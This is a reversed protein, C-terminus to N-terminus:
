LTGEMETALKLLENLRERQGTLYLYGLVAELATAKRYDLPDANKTPTQRANEARRAIAAEEDSLLPRLKELSKAQAGANVVASASKSLANVKGAAKLVLRSRVFLDYVSDGVFALELSGPKQGHPFAAMDMERSM